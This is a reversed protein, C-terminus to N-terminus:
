ATSLQSITTEQYYHNKKFFLGKHNATIGLIKLHNGPFIYTQLLASTTLTPPVHVSKSTNQIGKTKM